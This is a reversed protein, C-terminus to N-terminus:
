VVASECKWFMQIYHKYSYQITTWISSGWSIHVTQNLNQVLGAPAASPGSQATGSRQSFCRPFLDVKGCGPQSGFDLYYLFLLIWMLVFVHIWKQVSYKKGWRGDGSWAQAGRQSHRRTHHGHNCDWAQHCDIGIINHLEPFPFPLPHVWSPWQFTM